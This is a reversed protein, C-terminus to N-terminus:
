RRGPLGPPEVPPPPEWSTVQYTGVAPLPVTRLRLWQGSDLQALLEVDLSGGGAVTLAPGAIIGSFLATLLPFRGAANVAAHVDPRPVGVTADTKTGAAALRVFLVPQLALIWGGISISTKGQASSRVLDLCFVTESVSVPARPPEVPAATSVQPKARRALPKTLWFVFTPARDLPDLRPLDKPLENRFCAQFRQLGEPSMGLQWAVPHNMDRGGDSLMPLCECGDFGIERCLKEFDPRSFFHKDERGLLAAENGRYKINFNTEFAWNMARALDGPPLLAPQDKMARDVRLSAAVLAQHFALAPEMFFAVGGPLLSRYVLELTKRYELIHHLVATGCVLDFQDERFCHELGSFTAYELRGQADLGLNKLRRQLIGLMKSSIDTIVTREPRLNRLLGATFGGTGAGIELV